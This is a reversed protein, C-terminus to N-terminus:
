LIASKDRPIAHHIFNVKLTPLGLIPINEEVM